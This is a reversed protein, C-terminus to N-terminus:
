HGSHHCTCLRRDKWMGYAMVLPGLIILTRAITDGLQPKAFQGIANLALGTVVLCLPGITRHHRWSLLCGGLGIVAASGLVLRDTLQSWRIWSVVPFFILILPMVMCHVACIASLWIGLRDLKTHAHPLPAPSGPPRLSVREQEAPKVATFKLDSKM